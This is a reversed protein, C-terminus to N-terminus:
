YGFVIEDLWVKGTNGGLSFSLKDNADSVPATFTMRYKAWQTTIAIDQHAYETYPADDKQVIVAISRPTDAKAMFEITYQKNATTPLNNQGFQVYWDTGSVQTTDIVASAAGGGTTTTDLALTAAAGTKVGLSWPATSADFSPNKLLNTAIPPIVVPIAAGKKWVRIYDINYNAPFVTSATPAGAWGGVQLNAILYFPKHPLPADAETIRYQLVGDVYWAIFDPAWDVAYTHYGKSFDTNLIKFTKDVQKKGGVQPFHYTMHTESPSGGLIEMIDIENSASHDAPLMWFAPWLGTGAPVKARVEAYGYQFTFKPIDVTNDKGRDSDIYGSTYSFTKISTRTTAKRAQLTLFGNAVTGNAPLYWELNDKNEFCGPTDALIGWYICRAWKGTSVSTGSFNDEFVMTWNFSRGILGNPTTPAPTQALTAKDDDSDGVASIDGGGGCAALGIATAAILISQKMLSIPAM